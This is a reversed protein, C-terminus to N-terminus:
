YARTLCPENRWTEVWPQEIRQRIAYADEIMRLPTVASEATTIPARRTWVANAFDELLAAQPTPSRFPMEIGHPGIHIQLLQGGFHRRVTVQNREAFFADAEGDSGVVRVGNLLRHTWSAAVRCPIAEGEVNLSGRLLGNTEMGGYSDDTFAVGRIEGFLWFVLDLVHIGMDYMVGGSTLTRDYYAGSTMDWSLEGGFEAIVERIQGLFKLDLLKRLIWANEQCRCWQGVAVIRETRQAAAAIEVAAAATSALPKECLVDIGMELLECTIPMHLSPWVCVIAADVKGKFDQFRTTVDCGLGYMRKANEAIQLNLDCLYRVEYQPLSRLAKLHSSRAIAGCGVVGLRIPKEAAKSSDM